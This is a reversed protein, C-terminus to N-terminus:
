KKTTSIKKVESVPATDAQTTKWIKKGWLRLMAPLVIVSSVACIIIGISCMYGLSALGQNDVFVLSGFGIVTTLSSLFMSQGTEHIAAFVDHRQDELYRSIIYIGYDVGSGILLPVSIM